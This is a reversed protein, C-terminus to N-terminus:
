GPEVYQILESWSSVSTIDLALYEKDARFEAWKRYFNMRSDEDLRPLLESHHHPPLVM